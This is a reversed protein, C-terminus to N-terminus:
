KKVEKIFEVPKSQLNITFSSIEGNNNTKFNLAFEPNMVQSIEQIPKMVFVNYHLHELFFQYTPYIANLNGNKLKIKITGYGKHTYAGEFSALNHTPKKVPNLEQTTKSPIYIDNVMVPYDKLDIQPLDLMRNRVIDGIIYPLISNTQNTLVTIGLKQFPYTVVLTSFGSTNGGHYVKYNGGNSEMRWGLGDGFLFVNEENENPRINHITTANRVFSEPLIQKGNFYGKNLWAMMWNAMDSSSSRIGGAPKYNHYNEYHVKKIKGKSLGYGLAYNNTKEMSALDTFSNRMNLPNFLTTKLNEEWSKGTVNEVIVGALAYGMNSYIWSDKVKAEPKIYKLKEILKLTNKEPFLVLTGNLNGLGSKHALLDEIAILNNMGSNYFELKPIHLSPHDKLSIKGEDDLIGVLTATFAKSCSAIPFITNENVPLKNELNRYGFGKSFVLTNDKVVAVSLGVANYLNMVTEIDQELGDLRTDNTQGFSFNFSILLISVLTYKKM